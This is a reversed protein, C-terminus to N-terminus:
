QSAAKAAVRCLACKVPDTYGHQCADASSGSPNARDAAGARSSCQSLNVEVVNRLAAGSDNRFGERHIRSADPDHVPCPCLRTDTAHSIKQWQGWEVVHLQNGCCAYRCISGTAALRQLDAAVKRDTYGSELPWVAAKILAANDKGRGEDDVYVWLGIYTLRTTVPLSAMTESEFFEPSIMRKRAM